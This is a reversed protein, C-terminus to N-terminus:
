PPLGRSNRITDYAVNAETTRKAALDRFEDPIGQAELRDPHYDKIIKIYAKRVESDSAAPSVGLVEYPDNAAEEVEKVYTGEIRKWDQLSFGFIRAVDQLFERESEGYVGDAVAIALLGALFNELVDRNGSFITRIQEAYPEYGLSDAKAANFIQRVESYAENPIPFVKKLTDVEDRTVRGDVKSLKAALTVFAFVFVSQLEEPSQPRDDTARVRDLGDDNLTGRASDVVQGLAMGVLIGLPGGVVGGIMGGLIKGFVRM